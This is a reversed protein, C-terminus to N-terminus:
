VSHKVNSYHLPLDLPPYLPHVGGGPIVYPKTIYSTNQKFIKMTLKTNFYFM